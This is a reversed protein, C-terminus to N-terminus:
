RWFLGLPLLASLAGTGCMRTSGVARPQLSGAKSSLKMELCSDTICFKLFQELRAAAFPEPCAFTAASEEGLWGAVRQLSGQPSAWCCSIPFPALAPHAHRHWLLATLPDERGWGVRGGRERWRVRPARAGVWWHWNNVNTADARQEVIWRPDGEGWKAMPVESTGAAAQRHGGSDGGSGCRRWRARTSAVLLAPLQAAEESGGGAFTGETEQWM